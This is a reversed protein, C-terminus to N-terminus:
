LYPPKILSLPAFRNGWPGEALPLCIRHMIRPRRVSLDVTEGSESGPPDLPSVSPLSLQTLDVPWGEEDM